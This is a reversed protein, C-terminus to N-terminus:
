EPVWDQWNCNFCLVNWGGPTEHVTLSKKRGDRRAHNCMPCATKHSFPPPPVIGARELPHPTM